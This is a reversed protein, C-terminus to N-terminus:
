AMLHYWDFIAAKDLKLDFKVDEVFPKLWYRLEDEFPEIYCASFRLKRILPHAEVIRQIAEASVSGKILYLTQLQPCLPVYISNSPDRRILGSLCTDGPTQYLDIVLTHLNPVAPLYRSIGDSEVDADQALFLRTVNTRALFPHVSTFVEENSCPLGIRLILDKSGPFILPLLLAIGESPLATLGLNELETLSVPELVTPGSPLITMDYLQLTHLQPCASLIAIMEHIQPSAEDAIGGVRLVILNHYASSGWDFRLGSLYLARIPALFPEARQLIMPYDEAHTSEHRRPRCGPQMRIALTRLAGPKGYKTWFIIFNMVLQIDRINMLIMRTLRDVQPELQKMVPHSDVPGLKYDLHEDVYLSLPADPARDLYLRAWDGVVVPNERTNFEFRSWFGQINVLVTRWHTCVHTLAILDRREDQQFPNPMPTNYQTRLSRFASFRFIQLLIELPLTNISLFSNRMQSLHAQARALKSQGESVLTDDLWTEALTARVSTSDGPHNHTYLNSQLAVTTDLYNQIAHDLARQAERWRQLMCSANSEM